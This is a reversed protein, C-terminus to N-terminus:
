NDNILDDVTVKKKAPEAKADPKKPKPPATRSNSSAVSQDATPETVSVTEPQPETSTVIADPTPATEVPAPQAVQITPAVQKEDASSGSMMFWGGIAIVFVLGIMGAIAPMPLSFGTKEPISFISDIEDDHSSDEMVSSQSTMDLPEEYEVAVDPKHPETSRHTKAEAEAEAEEIEKLVAALADEDVDPSTERYAVVEPAAPVELVAEVRQAQAAMEAEKRLRAEEAAQENKIRDEEAARLEQEMLERQRQEAAKAERMKREEAEAEAQRRKEEAETEQKLRLAAAEVARRREEAEAQQRQENETAQIKAQEARRFQEAAESQERADGENRELVRGIATQLVQRMIMASDFRNERKIELAKMLVDSIDAPIRPDVKSPEPLPDLKGELIEISRELPDVPEVGTILFYLTAGLSYIDSREDLPQKLIRESRDDYSNTIVKQSAPDLGPWIQEMPSYRLEDGDVQSTGFDSDIGSEVGVGLLKIKGNPGAKVNAPNINRHIIAPKRTHLYNLADLLQDAWNTVEDVSFPQNHRQIQDALSEGEVAEMVLYQRDIESFFDHVHLLADHEIETLAKAQTAFALKLSERQSVTAVKNLKVPIERVIVNTNRVTDYAEFTKEEGTETPSHDIRYRGEQLLETTAPMNKLTLSPPTLSVGVWNYVFDTM